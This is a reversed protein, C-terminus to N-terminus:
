DAWTPVDVTIKHVPGSSVGSEEHITWGCVNAALLPMIVRLNPMLAPNHFLLEQNMWGIWQTEGEQPKPEREEGIELSGTCCYITTDGCVMRGLVEVYSLDYGAEERTERFTAQIPTEGEEIKGGPLNYRGVQWDPKDKQVVLVNGSFYDAESKVYVLVYEPMICKRLSPFVNLFFQNLTLNNKLVDLNL